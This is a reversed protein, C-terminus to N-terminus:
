MHLPLSSNEETVYDVYNATQTATMYECAPNRVQKCTVNPIKKSVAAPKPCRGPLLGAGPLVPDVGVFEGVEAGPVRPVPPGLTCRVTNREPLTTISSPVGGGSDTDMTRTHLEPTARGCAWVSEFPRKLKWNPFVMSVKASAETSVM